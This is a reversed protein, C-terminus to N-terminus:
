KERQQCPLLSPEWEEKIGVAQHGVVKVEQDFSLFVVDALDHMPQQSTVTVVIISAISSHAMEELFSMLCNETLALTIQGFQHTINVEVRHPRSHYCRGLLILVAPMAGIEAQRRRPTQVDVRHQPMKARLFRLRARRVPLKDCLSHTLAMLVLEVRSVFPSDESAVLKNIRCDM